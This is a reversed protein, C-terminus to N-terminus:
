LAEVTFIKSPSHHGTVLRVSGLPVSFADALLERVRRNALNRSAPERVLIDFETDSLRTIREKRVGPTVRVKIYM